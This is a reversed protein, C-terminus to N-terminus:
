VRTQVVRTLEENMPRNPDDGNIEPLATAIVQFVVNINLCSATLPRYPVQIVYDEKRQKRTADVVLLKGVHEALYDNTKAMVDQGAEETQITMVNSNSGITRHFGHSFEGLECVSAPICLTEMIKLMAEVAVGYNTGNGVVYFHPITSWDQHSEVWKMTKEITVPIDEVSAVIEDMYTQYADEALVAKGKGIDLALLMLLTLSSSVGKTKANCPELGCLFNLYYDGQQEVPTDCRETLTLVKFGLQKAHHIADITGSSTGTQSIAVILTSERDLRELIPNNGTFDFPTFSTVEVHALEEFFRKAVLTINLSSGSAVFLIRKLDSPDHAKVFDAVQASAILEKLRDQQEYIHDWMISKEMEGVGEM